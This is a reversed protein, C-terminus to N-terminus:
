LQSAYRVANDFIAMGDGKEKLGYRTWQPHQEPRVHREPHPMLGLVRGDSDCIGAIDLLSGNPNLDYKGLALNGDKDCYQFTIQGNRRLQEPIGKSAEFKGEAHAVPLYIISGEMGRTFVCKEGNVKLYTWMCEFKESDNLVLNAERKGRNIDPLLGAKVLVQFGNCIGLMLKGDDRARYLEDGLNEVIKNAWVAGAAVDDGHSFGGPFSIIQYQRLMEPNEIARNVHVREAIAGAQEFAFKTEWDCNTGATRMIM